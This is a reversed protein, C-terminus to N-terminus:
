VNIIGDWKSGKRLNDQAWLPQLNNLAWCKKFDPHETSDYGFSSIPRIHDIHWGSMNDWSMGNTFQSELHNTLQSVTFDFYKWINDRSRTGNLVRRMAHNLRGSLRSVPKQRQISLWEESCKKSCNRNYRDRQFNKGCVLCDVFVKPESLRNLRSKENWEKKYKPDQMRIAHNVRSIKNLTDKNALYYQKKYEKIRNRNKKQYESKKIALTEANGKRWQKSYKTQKAERCEHSCTVSNSRYPEFETNCIVCEKMM